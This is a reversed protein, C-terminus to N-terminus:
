SAVLLRDRLKSRGARVLRLDLAAARRMEARKVVFTPGRAPVGGYTREPATFGFFVGAHRATSSVSPCRCAGDPFRAIQVNQRADNKGSV